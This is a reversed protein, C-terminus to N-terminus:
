CYGKRNDMYITVIHLSSNSDSSLSSSACLVIIPGCQEGSQMIMFFDNTRLAVIM